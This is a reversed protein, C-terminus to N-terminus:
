NHENLESNMMMVISCMKGTSVHIEVKQSSGSLSFNLTLYSTFLLIIAVVLILM